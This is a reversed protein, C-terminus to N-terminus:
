EGASWNIGSGGGVTHKCAGTLVRAPRIYDRSAIKIGSELLQMSQPKVRSAEGDLRQASVAIRAAVDDDSGIQPIHIVRKGLVPLHGFDRLLERHLEARLRKVDQVM